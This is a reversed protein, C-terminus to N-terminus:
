RAFIRDFKAKHGTEISRAAIDRPYVREVCDELAFRNSSRCLSTGLAVIIAKSAMSRAKQIVDLSM